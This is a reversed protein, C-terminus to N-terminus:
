KLQSVLKARAKDYKTKYKTYDKHETGFIIENRFILMDLDKLGSHAKTIKDDIEAQKEIRAIEDKYEQSNIDWTKVM